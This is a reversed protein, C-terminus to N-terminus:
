LSPWSRDGAFDLRTGIKAAGRNIYAIGPGVRAIMWGVANSLKVITRTAM